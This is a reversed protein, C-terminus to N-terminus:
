AARRRRESEPPDSSQQVPIRLSAAPLRRVPPNGATASLLRIEARSRLRWWPRAGQQGGPPADISLSPRTLLLVIVFGTLIFGHTALHAPEVRGALLDNINLVTLVVVFASLTAAIGSPPSRRVAVWLFGFGIAVNWAASEHWLHGTSAGTLITDAHTHEPTSSLAAVQVLGLVLQAIGLVGLLLRLGTAVRARGPGPAAELVSDTVDRGAPVPGTRIMRTIAAADDLWQQCQACGALHAEVAEQHATPGEPEDDLQASLSERCQECGVVDEYDTVPALPNRGPTPQTNGTTRSVM